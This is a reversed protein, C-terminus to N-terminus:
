ASNGLNNTTHGSSLLVEGCSINVHLSTVNDKAYRKRWQWGWYWQGCGGGGGGGSVVVLWGDGSVVM